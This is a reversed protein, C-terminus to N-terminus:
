REMFDKWAELRTVQKELSVLSSHIKTSDDTLQRFGASAKEEAKAFGANVNEEIKRIRASSGNWILKLAIIIAVAPGGAQLLAIIVEPPLEMQALVPAFNSVFMM